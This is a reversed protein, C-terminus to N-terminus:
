RFRAGIMSITITILLLIHRLGPVLHYILQPFVKVVVEKSGKVKFLSLIM